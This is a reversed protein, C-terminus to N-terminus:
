EIDCLASILALSSPTGSPLVGLHQPFTAVALSAVRKRDHDSPKDNARESAHAVSPAKVDLSRDYVAEHKEDQTEDFFCDQIYAENLVFSSTSSPTITNATSTPNSATDDLTLCSSVLWYITKFDKFADNAGNVADIQKSLSKTSEQAL